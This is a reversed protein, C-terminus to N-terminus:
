GTSEGRSGSRVSFVAALLGCFGLLFLGARATHTFEWQDRLRTWDAPEPTWTAFEQHVPGVLVWWMAHALILCAAGALV